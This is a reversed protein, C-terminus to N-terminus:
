GLIISVDSFCPLDDSNEPAGVTVLKRPETKWVQQFKANSQKKKNISTTPSFLTLGMKEFEPVMACLLKRVVNECQVMSKTDIVDLGICNPLSLISQTHIGITAMTSKYIEEVSASTHQQQQQEKINSMLQNSNVGVLLIPPLRKSANVAITPDNKEHPEVHVTTLMPTGSNNNEYDNDNGGSSVLTTTGLRQPMRVLQKQNSLAYSPQEFYKKLGDLSVSADFLAIYGTCGSGSYQEIAMKLECWEGCMKYLCNIASSYNDIQECWDRYDSRKSDHPRGTAFSWLFEKISDKHANLCVISFKISYSPQIRAFIEFASKFQKDQESMFVGVDQDVDDRNTLSNGM